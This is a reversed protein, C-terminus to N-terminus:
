TSFLVRFFFLSSVYFRYQSNKVRVERWYLLSKLNLGLTEAVIHYLSSQRRNFTSQKSESTEGQYKWYCEQSKFHSIRSLLSM